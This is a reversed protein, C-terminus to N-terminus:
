TSACTKRIIFDLKNKSAKSSPDSTNMEGGSLSLCDVPFYATGGFFDLEQNSSLKVNLCCDRISKLFFEACSFKM